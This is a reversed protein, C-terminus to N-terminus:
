LGRETPRQPTEPADYLPGPPPPPTENAADPTGAVKDLGEQVKDMGKDIKDSHKGGTKKDVMDGAKELGTEIKDRNQTVLGKAKDRMNDLMGM